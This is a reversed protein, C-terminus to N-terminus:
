KSTLAADVAERFFQSISKKDKVEQKVQEYTEAEMQIIVRVTEKMIRPRGPLGTHMSNM